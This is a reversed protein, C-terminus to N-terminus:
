KDELKFTQFTGVSKYNTLSQYASANPNNNRSVILTTNIYTFIAVLALLTGFYKNSIKM